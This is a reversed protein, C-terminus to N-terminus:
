HRGGGIMSAFAEALSVAAGAESAGLQRLAQPTGDFRLRGDAIVAVRDVDDALDHVQHTSIVIGGPCDLGKLLDRFNMAQAPDLGATPEDLLLAPAQRVLAQALGLRRLQGGSLRDSRTDSKDELDVQVVAERARARADRRSAGAVWAAYEIQELTTLGRAAQVDQPMWGVNTYLARRGTVGDFTVEGKAPSEYGCLLKLLTSKGAGNPGLLLTTEGPTVSWDFDSFVAHPRLRGYSFTLGTAKLM